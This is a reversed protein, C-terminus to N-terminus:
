EFWSIAEWFILSIYFSQLWSSRDIIKDVHNSFQKKKNKEANWRDTTSFIMAFINEALVTHVMAMEMFYAIAAHAM